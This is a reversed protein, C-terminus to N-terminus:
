QVRQTGRSRWGRRIAARAPDKAVLLIIVAVLLKAEPRSDSWHLNLGVGDLVKAENGGKYLLVFALATLTLAVVALLLNSVARAIQHWNARDMLPAEKLPSKRASGVIHPPILALFWRACCHGM